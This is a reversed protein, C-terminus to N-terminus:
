SIPPSAELHDVHTGLHDEQEEKKGKEEKNNNNNNLNLLMLKM